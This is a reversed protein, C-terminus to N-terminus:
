VTRVVARLKDLLMRVGQCFDVIGCSNSLRVCWFPKYNGGM